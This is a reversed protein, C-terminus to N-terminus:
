KGNIFNLAEVIYQNTSYVNKIGIGYFKTFFSPWINGLILKRNKKQKVFSEYLLKRDSNFSMWLWNGLDVNNKLMEPVWYDDTININSKRFLQNIYFRSLVISGKKGDMFFPHYGGCAVLDENNYIVIFGANNQYYRSNKDKLM